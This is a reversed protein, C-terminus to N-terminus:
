EHLLNCNMLFQKHQKESINEYELLKDLIAVIEENIKDSNSGTQKEQLLLKLRDCLKDSDSPLFNTSIGSAM